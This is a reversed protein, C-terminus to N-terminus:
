SKNHTKKIISSFQFYQNKKYVRDINALLFSIICWLRSSTRLLENTKTKDDDDDDDDDDNNKDNGFYKTSSNNVNEVEDNNNSNTCEKM